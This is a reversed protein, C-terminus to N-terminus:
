YGYKKLIITVIITVIASIVAGLCFLIYDRYASRKNAKELMKEFHNLVEVPTNQLQEIKSTLETEKGSLEVLKDELKDITTLKEKMISNIEETAKEMELSNKKLAELTNNLRERYTIIPKEKIQSQIRNVLFSRVFPLLGVLISAIASILGAIVFSNNTFFDLITRM